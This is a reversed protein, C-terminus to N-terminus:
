LARLTTMCFSCQLSPTSSVKKDNLPNSILSLSACAYYKFDCFNLASTVKYILTIQCNIQLM